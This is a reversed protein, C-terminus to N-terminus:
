FHLKRINNRYINTDGKDLPKIDFETYPVILFDKERDVDDYMLNGYILNRQFKLHNFNCKVAHLSKYTPAFMVLSNNKNVTKKIDCWDWPLWDRDYQTNHKWYEGIYKREPKFDLLHTFMEVGEINEITNINVLYTLCKNVTDPHPSLEFKDLYKQLSTSIKTKRSVSFKEKLCDHFQKSNLYDFLEAMLPNKFKNLKFVLGLASMKRKDIDWDGTELSEIYTEISYSAGPFTRLDYGSNVIHNVLEKLNNFEPLKVQDSNVILNFHEDSLFNDIIIHEFPDSCFEAMMIKESIYSFKNQMITKPAWLM